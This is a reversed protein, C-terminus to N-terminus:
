DNIINAVIQLWNRILLTPYLPVFVLFLWELATELTVELIIWSVNVFCNFYTLIINHIKM